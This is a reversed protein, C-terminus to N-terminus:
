ATLADIEAQAEAIKAEADQALADAAIFTVDDIGMFGLIFRLYPTARDIDSGVETGGSAVAVIARKGELLGVPGSETYRFTRGARAVLDIWAKLSAPVMFNYVPLGIVFTEAAEMEGILEDSLAMVQKQADTMKDAPTGKAAAWDADVFPLGLAVDRRIVEGGLTKSIRDSLKRTVSNEMRASSDIQLITM